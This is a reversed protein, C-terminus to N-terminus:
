INLITLAIDVGSMKYTFIKDFLVFACSLVVVGETDRCSRAFVGGM